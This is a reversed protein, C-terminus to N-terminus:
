RRADPKWASDMRQLYRAYATDGTGKAAEQDRSARAAADAFAALEGPTLVPKGGAGLQREANPNRAAAALLAANVGRLATAEYRLRAVEANADNLSTFVPPNQSMERLGEKFRDPMHDCLALPVTIRGGPPVINPAGAHNDRALAMAGYADGAAHLRAVRDAVARPVSFAMDGFRVTVLDDTTPMM